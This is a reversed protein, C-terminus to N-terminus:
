ATLHWFAYISGRGITKITKIRVCPKRQHQLPSIFDWQIIKKEEKIINKLLKRKERYFFLV